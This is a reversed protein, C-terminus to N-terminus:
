AAIESRSSIAGSRNLVSGSSVPRRRDRVAAEGITRPVPAPEVPRPLVDAGVLRAGNCVPCLHRETGDDRLITWGLEDAERWRARIAAPAPHAGLDHSWHCGPVRRSDCHLTVAISVTM